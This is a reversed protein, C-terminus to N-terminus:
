RERCSARGIEKWKALDESTYTYTPTRNNQLASNLESETFARVYGYGDAVEPFRTFNQMGYYANVNVVPDAGVAGKKTTVLVVGNSARLGYIAASADKLISMNEIDNLGLQNFAAADAPVGDIIYLPEGMNRIQLTTANGPRSDGSLATVGQIKGVLAGATTTASTRIIDDAQVTGVSGTVTGRSQVGYGVVVVEDLAQQDEDLRVNLITQSSVPVEKSLFGIYSFVLTGNEPTEISFNGDIDTTVGTSTGQLRISVGILPEGKVDSVKGRVIIDQVVVGQPSIIAVLGDGFVRYNLNTEKLI